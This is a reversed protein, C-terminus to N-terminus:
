TQQNMFEEFLLKDDECYELGYYGLANEIAKWAMEKLAKEHKARIADITVSMRHEHLMVTEMQYQEMVEEHRQNILNVLDDLTECGYAEQATILESM